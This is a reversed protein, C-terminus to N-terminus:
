RFGANRSYFKLPNARLYSNNNSSANITSNFYSDDSNMKMRINIKFDNNIILSNM